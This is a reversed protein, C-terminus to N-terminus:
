GGPAVVESWSDVENVLPRVRASTRFHPVSAVKNEAMMSGNKNTM